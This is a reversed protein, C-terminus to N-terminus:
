IRWFTEFIICFPLREVSLNNDCKWSQLFNHKNTKNQLYNRLLVTSGRLYPWWHFLSIKPLILPTAMTVLNKKKVLFHMTTKALHGFFTATIVLHGCKRPPWLVPNWQIITLMQVLLWFIMPEVELPIVHVTNLRPQTKADSSCFIRNQGLIFNDHLWASAFFNSGSYILVELAAPLLLLLNESISPM